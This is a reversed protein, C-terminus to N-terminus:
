QHPKRKLLKTQEAAYERPGELGHGWGGWTWLTLNQQEGIMHRQLLWRTNRILYEAGYSAIGEADHRTTLDRIRDRWEHDLVYCLIGEAGSHWDRERRVWPDSCYVTPPVTMWNTTVRIICTAKAKSEPLLSLKGVVTWDDPNEFLTADTFRRMVEQIFNLM